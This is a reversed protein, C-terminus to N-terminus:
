IFFTFASNSEEPTVTVIEEKSGFTIRIRVQYEDRQKSYRAVLSAAYLLTDRKQVVGRGLGLPGPTDVLQFTIDKQEVLHQMADNDAQNRGIVLRFTPDLRLHRGYAFLKFDSLQIKVGYTQLDRYRRTMEEETLLCGGAPSAHKLNHKQAYALQEKRSRGQIALLKDREVWGQKEPVTPELLGASLPRLLYGSVGSQKEILKMSQMKQSKPRQGLVEGTAIFQAGTQNMIVAAKKLRHIRCDICPNIHKGFGYRCQEIMTLFEEGEEEIRLPIQLSDAYESVSQHSFGFGSEFPLVFHLACVDIGQQKLLHAAIVSDLGGSFMVISKIM